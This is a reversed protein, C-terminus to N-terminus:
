TKFLAATLQAQAVGVLTMITGDPLTITTSAIGNVTTAQSTAIINNTTTTNENQYFIFDTTTNFTNNFSGVTVTASSTGAVTGRTATSGVYTTSSVTDNSGFGVASGAVSDAHTWLHTGGVVSGNGTGIRDGDGGFVSDATNTALVTDHSAIRTAGFSFANITAGGTSGSLNILDGKGVAASPNFNFAGATGGLVTNGAAANASGSLNTIGGAGVKILMGGAAGEINTTGSGATITDGAAGSTIASAGSTPANGTLDILSNAGAAIAVNQTSGALSLITDGAVGTITASGSTGAVVTTGAGSVVIQQGTGSGATISDNAGGWISEGGLFAASASGGVVTENGVLASLIQLTSPAQGGILTDGKAGLVTQNGTGLTIKSASQPGSVTASAAVSDVALFNGGGLRLNTGTLFGTDLTGNPDAMSVTFNNDPNPIGAVTPNTFVEINLAGPAAFPFVPAVGNNIGLVVGNFGSGAAPSFIWRGGTPSSM